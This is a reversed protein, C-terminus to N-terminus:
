RKATLTITAPRTVLIQRVQTARNSALGLDNMAV